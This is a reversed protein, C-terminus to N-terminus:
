EVAVAERELWIGFAADVGRRIEDALAFLEVSTGGYNVLALTHNTSIGVGGKRYGKAFGAHEILWAAPIKIGSSSGYSPVATEPHRDEWARAIAAFREPTVIPNMFFSGVSRTNPDSPDVVMSKKRRLALVAARISSLSHSANQQDLSRKLEPYVSGSGGQNRSLRFAVETVIWDNKERLKFRSMRYGFECEANSFLAAQGTARDIAKVHIITDAVEQGYAGVNQIPTAGASGPIGSLCEVGSLGREVALKVFDDWREGAQVRATVDGDNEENWEIGRTAIRMVIGNYGHDPFILNSGGGLIQLPVGLRRSEALVGRMADDSTCEIFSRAPGGLGITTFSALRIDHQFVPATTHDIM